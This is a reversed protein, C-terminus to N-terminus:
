FFNFMKEYNSIKAAMSKYFLHVCFPRSQLYTNWVTIECEIGRKKKGIKERKSPMGVTKEQSCISCNSPLFHTSAGNLNFSDREAKATM